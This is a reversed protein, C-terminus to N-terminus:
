QIQEKQRLPPPKFNPSRVSFTFRRRANTKIIAPRSQILTPDAPWKIQCKGESKNPCKPACFEIPRLTFFHGLIGSGTLPIFHFFQHSSGGRPQQDQRNIHFSFPRSTCHHRLPLFRMEPGPPILSVAATAVMNRGLPQWRRDDSPFSPFAAVHGGVPHINM